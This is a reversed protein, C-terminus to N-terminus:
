KLEKHMQLNISLLFIMVKFDNIKYNLKQWDLETSWLKCFNSRHPFVRTRKLLVRFSTPPLNARNENSSHISNNTRYNEKVKLPHDLCIAFM